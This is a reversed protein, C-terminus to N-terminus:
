AHNKELASLMETCESCGCPLAERVCRVLEKITDEHDQHQAGLPDSGSKWGAAYYLWHGNHDRTSNEYDSIKDYYKALSKPISAPVTTYM